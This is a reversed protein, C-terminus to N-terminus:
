IKCATAFDCTIKLIEVKFIQKRDGGNECVLRLDTTEKGHICLAEIQQDQCTHRESQPQFRDNPVTTDM